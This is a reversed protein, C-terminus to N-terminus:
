ALKQPHIFPKRYTRAMYSSQQVESQIPKGEKLKISTGLNMAM